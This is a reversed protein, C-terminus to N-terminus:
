EGKKEILNKIEKIEQHLKNIEEVLYKHYKNDEQMNQIQVIFSAITLIDLTEFGRDTNNNFM